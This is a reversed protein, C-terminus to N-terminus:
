SSRTQSLQPLMLSVVHRGVWLLLAQAYEKPSTLSVLSLLPFSLMRKPSLSLISEGWWWKQRMALSLYIVCSIGSDIPLSISEIQKTVPFEYECPLTSSYLFPYLILTMVTMLKGYVCKHICSWLNAGTSVSLMIVISVSGSQSLSQCRSWQMQIVSQILTENSSHEIVVFKVVSFLM